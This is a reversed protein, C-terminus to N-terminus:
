FGKSQVITKQIDDSYMIILQAQKKPWPMGGVLKKFTKHGVFCSPVMKVDKQIFYIRTQVRGMFSIPSYFAARISM